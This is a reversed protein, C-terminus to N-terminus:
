LGVGQDKNMVGLDVSAGWHYRPWPILLETSSSGAASVNVWIADSTDNKIRVKKRTVGVSRSKCMTLQVREVRGGCERSQEWVEM